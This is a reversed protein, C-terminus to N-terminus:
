RGCQPTGDTDGCYQSSRETTEYDLVNGRVDREVRCCDLIMDRLQQRARQIRSKAGSLSIGAFDALEQQSLGDVDALKMAARYPEPLLAIMRSVCPTLERLADRPEDHGADDAPEMLDVDAHDRLARARYHDIVANRAFAILWGPLKDEPPLEGPRSQVKLMVDQTIDDAAHPDRVKSGVFRRVARGMDPWIDHVTKM